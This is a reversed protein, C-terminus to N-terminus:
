TLSGAQEHYSDPNADDGGLVETLRLTDLDFLLLRGPLRGQFLSAPNLRDSVAFLVANGVPSWQVSHIFRDTVYVTFPAQNSGAAGIVLSTGDEDYRVQTYLEGDPSRLVGSVEHHPEDSESSQMALTSEYRAVTRPLGTQVASDLLYHGTDSPWQALPLASEQQTPVALWGTVVAAIVLSAALAQHRWKSHRTGNHKRPSAQPPQANTVPVALRYGRKPITEIWTAQQDPHRLQRRLDSVARSLSNETVVVRPWIASILHERTVVEGNAEALLTLLHMLRPELSRTEGSDQCFLRHRASQVTWPGLKFDAPRNTTAPVTMPVTMPTPM